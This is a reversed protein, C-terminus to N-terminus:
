IKDQIYHLFRTSHTISNTALDHHFSLRYYYIDSSLLNDKYGFGIEFSTPVASRPYIEPSIYSQLM